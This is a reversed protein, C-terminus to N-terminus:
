VAGHKTLCDTVADQFMRVQVEMGGLQVEKMTGSSLGEQCMAAAWYDENGFVQSMLEMSKRLGNLAKESTPEEPVLMYYDVACEDVAIPRVVGLSVYRPSVVIIGNPFGIYSFVMIWRLEDHKRTILKREFNSRHAANRIHPGIRDIQNESDVSFQALSNKHLRTVHYSDLMSDMVLKWNAKVPFTAHDYCYSDGLELADLDEALEGTVTSFDPPNDPDLGVWVLGGAVRSPLELLGLQSKELGPFIEARPLGILKGDLDFTWAHYPCVIRPGHETRDSTCLKMGRHKCVNAFVKVEGDKNRTLLLPMGAITVQYHSRPKDLVAAPAAIVPVGKFVYKLEAEYRAPDIYNRAPISDRVEPYHCDALEPMAELLRAQGETVEGKRAKVQTATDM